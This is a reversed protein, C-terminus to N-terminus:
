LNELSEEVYQLRQQLATITKELRNKEKELKQRPDDNKHQKM